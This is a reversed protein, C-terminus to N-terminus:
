LSHHTKVKESLSTSTDLYVRLSLFPLNTLYSSYNILPSYIDSFKESVRAVVTPLETPTSLLFRVLSSITPM